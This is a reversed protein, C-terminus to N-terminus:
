QNPFEIIKLVQIMGRDGKPNWLPAPRNFIKNTQLVVQRIRDLRFLRWPIPNRSVSAGSLEFARLVENGTGNVLGYCYPQIIRWGPVDVWTNPDSGTHGMYEIYLQWRNDIAREIAKRVSSDIPGQPRMAARWQELHSSNRGKLREITWLLRHYSEINM